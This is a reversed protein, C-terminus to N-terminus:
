FCSQVSYVYLQKIPENTKRKEGENRGSLIRVTLNFAPPTRNNQLTKFLLLDTLFMLYSNEYKLLTKNKIPKSQLTNNDLCVWMNKNIFITVDKFYITIIGSLSFLKLQNDIQLRIM